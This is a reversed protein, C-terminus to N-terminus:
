STVHLTDINYCTETASCYSKLRVQDSVCFFMKECGPKHNMQFINFSNGEPRQIWMRDMYYELCSYVEKESYNPVEIPLFPDIEAFGQPFFSALPWCM